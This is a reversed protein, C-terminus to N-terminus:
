LKELFLTSFHLQLPSMIFLVSVRERERRLPHFIDFKLLKKEGKKPKPKKLYLCFFRTLDIAKQRGSSLSYNILNSKADRKSLKMYFLISQRFLSTCEYAVIAVAAAAAAAAAAVVVLVVDFPVTKKNFFFFQCSQIKQPSHNPFM